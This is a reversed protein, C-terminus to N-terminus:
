AEIDRTVFLQDGRNHLNFGLAYATRISPINHFLITADLRRVKRRALEKLVFDLIGKGIERGRHSGAVAHFLVKAIEPSSDNWSKNPPLPTLYNIINHLQPVINEGKKQTKKIIKRFRNFTINFARELGILPHHIMFSIRWRKMDIVALYFAIIKSQVEGVVFVIRKDVLAECCLAYYLAPDRSGGIDPRISKMIELVGEFDRKELLRFTPTENKRDKEIRPIENEKM